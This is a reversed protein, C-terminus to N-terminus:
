LLIRGFMYSSCPALCPVSSISYSLIDSRRGESRVCCSWYSSPVGRLLMDCFLNSCCESTRRSSSINSRSGEPWMCCSRDSRPVGRLWTGRFLNSSCCALVNSELCSISRWCCFSGVCPMASLYMSGFRSRSLLSDPRFCDLCRCSPKSSSVFLLSWARSCRCWPLYKRDESNGCSDSLSRLSRARSFRRWEDCCRSRKSLDSPAGM